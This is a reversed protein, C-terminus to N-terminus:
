NEHDQNREITPQVLLHPDSLRFKHHPVYDLQLIYRKETNKNESTRM